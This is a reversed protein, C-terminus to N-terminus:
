RTRRSFVLVYEKNINAGNHRGYSMYRNRIPYWLTDTLTFHEQAMEIFMDATPLEHGNWKSNGIVLAVIGGRRVLPALQSLADEMSITYHLFANARKVSVSAIKEYWATSLPRLEGHRRLIPDRQSVDSRGIYRPRLQLRESQSKTLGLWFMELQHRRYYDVANHYPPSTIIADVPNRLRSGLATIDAQVVSTKMARDVSTAYAEVAVLSKKVATAYLAFPNILRGAADLSRMHATVELGSVPVPDANSCGRIISAFVLRFFAKHTRPIDARTIRSLIRALDVIVYRRFWHM